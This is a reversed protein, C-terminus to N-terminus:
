PELVKAAYGLGFNEPTWEGVPPPPSIAFNNSFLIYIWSSVIGKANYIPQSCDETVYRNSLTEINNFLEGSLGGVM